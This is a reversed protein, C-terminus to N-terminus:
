AFNTIIGRQWLPKTYGINCLWFIKLLKFEFDQMKVCKQKSIIDMAKAPM